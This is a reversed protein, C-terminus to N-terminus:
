LAQHDDHLDDRALILRAELLAILDNITKAGSFEDAAVLPTLASKHELMIVPLEVTVDPWAAKFDARHYFHTPMPLAKLWQRWTKDMTFFGHTLACLDCAYTTPSVTKHISDMLGNLIGAEANYVFVLKM